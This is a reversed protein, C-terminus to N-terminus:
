NLGRQGVMHNEILKNRKSLSLYDKSFNIGDIKEKIKLFM